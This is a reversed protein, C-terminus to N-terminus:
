GLWPGRHRTIWSRRLRQSATAWRCPRQSELIHCALVAGSTVVGRDPIRGGTPVKMAPKREGQLPSAFTVTASSPTGFMRTLVNAAGECEGDSEGARPKWPASKYWPLVVSMRYFNGTKDGECPLLAQSPLIAVMRNVAREGRRRRACMFAGWSHKKFLYTPPHTPPHMPLYPPPGRKWSRVLLCSGTWRTEHKYAVDRVMQACLHGPM